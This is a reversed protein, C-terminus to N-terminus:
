DVSASLFDKFKMKEKVEILKTVFYNTRMIVNCQWDVSLFIKPRNYIYRHTIATTAIFGSLALASTKSFDLSLLILASLCDSLEEDVNRGARYNKRM